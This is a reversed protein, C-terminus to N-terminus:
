LTAPYQSTYGGWDRVGGKRLTGASIHSHNLGLDPLLFVNVCTLGSPVPDEHRQLVSLLKEVCVLVQSKVEVCSSRYHWYPLAACVCVCVCVCM